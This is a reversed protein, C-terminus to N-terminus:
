LIVHTIIENKRDTQDKKMIIQSKLFYKKSLEATLLAFNCSNIKSKNTGQLM